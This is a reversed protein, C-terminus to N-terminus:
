PLGRREPAQAPPAVEDSMNMSNFSQPRIPDPGSTPESWCVSLVRADQIQGNLAAIALEGADDSAMEVIGIGTSQSSDLHASVKASMVAGFPAFLQALHRDDMFYDLNSIEISKPV